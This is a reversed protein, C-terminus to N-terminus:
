KGTKKAPGRVEPVEGLNELDGFTISTKRRLADDVVIPRSEDRAFYPAASTLMIAMANGLTERRADISIRTRWLVKKEKKRLAQADLAGIMIYLRDEKMASNLEDAESASLLHRRAKELGVLRAKERANFTYVSTEVEGSDSDTEAVELTDLNSYGWSFVIAISPVPGGPKTELFHRSALVRVLEARLKAPDPDPVGAIPAGMDQQLGGLIVYYVPNGPDPAVSTRDAALVDAVVLVDPDSKRAAAPSLIGSLALLLVCAIPRNLTLFLREAASSTEM